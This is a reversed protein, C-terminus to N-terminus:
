WGSSGSIKRISRASKASRMQGFVAALNGHYLALLADYGVLCGLREQDCVVVGLDLCGVGEVADGLEALVELLDAVLLAFENSVQEYKLFIQM